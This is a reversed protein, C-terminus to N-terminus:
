GLYLDYLWDPYESEPKLKIDEGGEKLINTGCVYNVLRYADTEVPLEVKKLSAGVKKAILVDYICIVNVYM